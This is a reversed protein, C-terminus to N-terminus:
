PESTLPGWAQQLFAEINDRWRELSYQKATDAAHQSMARYLEEDGLCKKVAEAVEEPAAEDILVGGGAGILQGIVSVRTAIVPLGCGLAELVVKPFGESSTTPFVFLDAQLLLEIVRQHSAKGHFIVATDVGLTKALRRFETLMAGDGIVSLTIGPQQIALLPLSRIVVDTGKKIEQRCAIVLRAPGGHRLNRASGYKDLENRTLTTSFIWQVNRNRMSPHESGGGTALMVNRGGAFREIFWHWFREAITDAKFWNGCYRVFLPKRLLFALVMGVTGVDGPIPTHVADARMISWILVPLCRLTWGIMAVKRRLGRGRIAPLARVRLNHGTLPGEGDASQGEYVPVLVETADFLQSLADMQFPFGGDTAFGSASNGSRWCPKHSIVALFM